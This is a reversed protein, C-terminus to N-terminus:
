ASRWTLCYQRRVNKETKNTNQREQGYFSERTENVPSMHQVIWCSSVARKGSEASVQHFRVASVLAGLSFKRPCQCGLQNRVGYWNLIYVWWITPQKCPRINYKVLIVSRPKHWFHIFTFNFDCRLYRSLLFLSMIYLQLKRENQTCM